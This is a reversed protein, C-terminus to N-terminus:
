TANVAYGKERLCQGLDEDQEALADYAGIGLGIAGGVISGILAGEASNAGYSCCITGEAAGIASGALASTFGHFMFAVVSGGRCEALALSYPEEDFGAASRDIEPSACASLFAAAALSAAIKRHSRRCM